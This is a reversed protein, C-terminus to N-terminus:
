RRSRTAAPQRPAPRALDPQTARVAAALEPDAILAAPDTIEAAGEGGLAEAM